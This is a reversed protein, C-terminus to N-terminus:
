GALLDAKVAAAGHPPLLIQADCGPNIAVGYGLPLRQFLQRGTLRLTHGGMDAPQRALATFVTVFQFEDQQQIVPRLGSGDPAVPETSPM